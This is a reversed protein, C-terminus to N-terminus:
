FPTIVKFEGLIQTGADFAVFYQNIILQVTNVHNSVDIDGLNMHRQVDLNHLTRNEMHFSPAMEETHLDLQRSVDFKKSSVLKWNM